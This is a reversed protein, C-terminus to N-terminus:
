FKGGSSPPPPARSPNPLPPSPDCARGVACGTLGAPDAAPRCPAPAATPAWGGLSPAGCHATGTHMQERGSKWQWVGRNGGRPESFLKILSCLAETRGPSGPREREPRPPSPVSGSEGKGVAPEAGPRGPAGLGSAPSPVKARGSLAGLGHGGPAETYGQPGTDQFPLSAPFLSYSELAKQSVSTAQM